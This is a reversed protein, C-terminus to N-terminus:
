RTTRLHIRDTFGDPGAEGGPLLVHLVGLSDFGLWPFDFTVTSHVRESTWGTGAEWTALHLGDLLELLAARRSGDRTSALGPLLFGSGTFAEGLGAASGWGAGTLSRIRYTTPDLNGPKQTYLLDADDSGRAVLWMADSNALPGTPVLDESWTGGTLRRLHVMGLEYGGPVTGIAAFHATGDPAAALRFSSTLFLDVLTVPLPTVSWNGGPNTAYEHLTILTSGSITTARWVVHIAGAGDLAFQVYYSLNSSFFEREAIPEDHWGAADRWSHRLQLLQFSAPRPDVNLLWLAHPQGTPDLLIGPDVLYETGVSGPFRHVTWGGASPAWVGSDNAPVNGMVAWHRSFWWAGDGGLAVADAYPVHLLDQALGWPGAPPPVLIPVAASVVTGFGTGPISVTVRYLYPGALPAPDVFSSATPGLEALTTYNVYTAETREVRQIVAIRSAPTWSMRVDGGVLTAQFNAPPSLRTQDDALQQAPSSRVETGRYTALNTIRYGYVFGPADTTSDLWSTATGPLTAVIGYGGIQGTIGDWVAREVLVASAATSEQGWELAVDEGQAHVVLSSPPRLGRLLTAEPTYTSSLGGRVAYMRFGLTVLEPATPQVTVYGGSASPPVQDDIVQWAGSEFRGEAVYRDVSSTSRTWTALFRDFGVWGLQLM